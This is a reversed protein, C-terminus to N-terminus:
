RGVGELNGKRWLRNGRELFEDIAPRDENYIHSSGIFGSISDAAMGLGEAVRQAMKVVCLADAYFKKFADQGRAFYIARLAGGRVLFQIVNICPVKGGGPGCLTVVARKSSPSARLLAMVDELDNRGGPGKMLDSYSHGLSNAGNSFFVKEMETMMRSDGLQRILEDGGACAPFAVRVELIELTEGDVSIGNQVTLQVLNLWAEGLSRFSLDHVGTLMAALM